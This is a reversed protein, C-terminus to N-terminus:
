PSKGNQQVRNELTLIVMEPEEGEIDISITQPFLRKWPQQRKDQSARAEAQQLWIPKPPAGHLDQSQTMKSHHAQASGIPPFESPQCSRSKYPLIINSPTCVAKINPLLSRLHPDFTDAGSTTYNEYQFNLFNGTLRVMVRQWPFSPGL